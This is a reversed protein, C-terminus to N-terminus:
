RLNWTLATRSKHKRKGRDRLHRCAGIVGTGPKSPEIMPQFKLPAIFATLKPLTNYCTKWGYPDLNQCSNGNYSHGRHDNRYNCLLKM